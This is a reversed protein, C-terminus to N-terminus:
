VETGQGGCAVDNLKDSALSVTLRHLPQHLFVQWTLLVTMICNTVVLNTICDNYLLVGRIRVGKALYFTDQNVLTRM